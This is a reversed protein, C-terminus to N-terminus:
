GEPARGKAGGRRTELESAPSESDYKGHFLQRLNFLGQNVSKSKVIAAITAEDLAEGTQYHKSLSRLIKPERRARAFVM